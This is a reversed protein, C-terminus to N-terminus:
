EARPVEVWFCSGRGPASRLGVRHGLLEGLRRVIALGLGLGKERDREPNDIQVFEDFIEAHREEPIGPGTDHVQIRVMGGVRRCGILVAGSPTHRVANEILNRLLRGLLMPDSEVTLGTKVVRLELGHDAARLHYEAQLSDLLLALPFQDIKPQIVGADLRSLDLLSDLLMRLGSIAQEM